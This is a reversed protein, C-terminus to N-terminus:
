AHCASSPCCGSLMPKTVFYDTARPALLDIIPKAREIERCHAVIKSQESHWQGFNDNVYVIPLGAAEAAARLAAIRRAATLAKTALQEAGEFALDNVIDVILVAPGGAAPPLSENDRKMM